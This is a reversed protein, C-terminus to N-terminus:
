QNYYPAAFFCLASKYNKVSIGYRPQLGIQASVDFFVEVCKKAECEYIKACKQQGDRWRQRANNVACATQALEVAMTRGAERM